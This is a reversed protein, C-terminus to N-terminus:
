EDKCRAQLRSEAIKDAAASPAIKWKEAAVFVDRLTDAIAECRQKSQEADYDGHMEGSVNIVGGANIVYDPAYLIGLSTLMDGVKADDLQNNASGAIVKTKLNKVNESNFVAGLACPALVDAEAFVIKDPDVATANFKQVAKETKKKDIDSVILSAGAEHLHECLKWGVHGLGQVAVTKGNLDSSGLRYRAAEKIGAFVGIATFLSLDGSAALGSKRGVVYRTQTAITDMDQSSMGVDEATYYIGGLANVARGFARLLPKTKQTKADGIIVAKGGGLSLGTMANKYSMGRSLRLVDELAADESEYPWMRCGGLAPGCVTSHIAIIARLGSESDSCFVVKQHNQFEPHDFVV